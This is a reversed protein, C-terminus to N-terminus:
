VVATESKESDLNILIEQNSVTVVNTEFEEDEQETIVLISRLINDKEEEFLKRCYVMTNLAWAKYGGFEQLYSKFDESGEYLIDQMLNLLILGEGDSVKEFILSWLAKEYQQCYNLLAVYEESNAYDSPSSDLSFDVWAKKWALYKVDFGSKVHDPILNILATLWDLETQTFYPDPEPDDSWEKQQEWEEWKEKEEPTMGSDSDCSFLFFTIGFVLILISKAKM